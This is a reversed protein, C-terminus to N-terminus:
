DHKKMLRPSLNLERGRALSYPQSALLARRPVAVVLWGCDPHRCRRNANLECPPYNGLLSAIGAMALLV